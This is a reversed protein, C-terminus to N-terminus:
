RESQTATHSADDTSANSASADPLTSEDVSKSSSSTSATSSEDQTSAWAIDIGSIKWGIWSAISSKDRTLKIDYRITGGQPLTATVIAESDTMGPQMYDVTIDDTKAVSAMIKNIKQQDSDSAVAVWCSSADEGAANKQFMETIVSQQSPIGFGQWYLVGCAAIALVLLIVLVLVVRLGRRKPKKNDQELLVQLDDPGDDPLTFFGTDDASPIGAGLVQDDSVEDLKTVPQANLYEDDYSSAPYYADDGGLADIGSDDMLQQHPTLSRMYDANAADSLQYSGDKIANEFCQRGEDMQDMAVYAQGMNAYTKNMTQQDPDFEFIAKYTEVADNPRNLGMFCVGLNLLAKVPQPNSEDVAANRFATGASAFDGVQMYANGLGTYAKYPAKYTPDALVAEFQEIAGKNDGISSLALGYNSHVATISDYATDSLAKNYAKAADDYSHMKILCNGLMHFMLGQEGPEFQGATDKICEYYDRLAGEYDQQAYAQKAQELLENNIM